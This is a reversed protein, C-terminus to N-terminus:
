TPITSFVPDPQSRLTAPVVVDSLSESITSVSSVLIQLSPDPSKLWGPPPLFHDDPSLHPGDPSLHPGDPSLHPGEPTPNSLTPGSPLDSPPNSLTSGSFILDSPPDGVVPGM